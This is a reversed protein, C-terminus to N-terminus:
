RFRESTSRSTACQTGMMLDREVIPCSARFIRSQTGAGLTSGVDWGDSPKPAVSGGPLSAVRAVPYVNGHQELHLFRTKIPFHPPYARGDAAHNSFTGQRCINTFLINPYYPGQAFIPDYYPINSSVSCCDYEYHLPVYLSSPPFCGHGCRKLGVVGRVAM